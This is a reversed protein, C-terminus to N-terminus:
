SKAASVWHTSLGDKHWRREYATTIKYDEALNSEHLDYSLETIQWGEAILQELSWDFLAHNDTKFRLLGDKALFQEYQALFKPHTLRHKAQRDKPFPDPFTIYITQVSSHPILKALQNAHARLYRITDLKESLAQKAGRYLRDSKVDVAIFRTDPHRRALETSFDATGAGIELVLPKDAAFEAITKATIDDAAWCNTWNDFHHFKWKKRKRTIFLKETM